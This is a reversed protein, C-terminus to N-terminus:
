AKSASVSPGEKSEFTPGNGTAPAAVGPTVLFGLTRLRAVEDAPLRVTAGPGVGQGQRLATTWRNDSVSFYRFQVGSVHVTHGPSVVAEVLDGPAPAAEPTLLKEQEPAANSTGLTEQKAAM